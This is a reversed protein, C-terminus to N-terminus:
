ICEIKGLFGGGGGGGGGRVFGGHDRVEFFGELADLGGLGEGLALLERERVHVIGEERVAFDKSFRAQALKTHPRATPGAIIGTVPIL